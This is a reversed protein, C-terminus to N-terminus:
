YYRKEGAWLPKGDTQSCCAWQFAEQDMSSANKAHSEPIGTNYEDCWGFVVMLGHGQGSMLM